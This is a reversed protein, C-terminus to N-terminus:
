GHELLQEIKEWEQEVYRRHTLRKLWSILRIPRRSLSQLMITQVDNKSWGAWEGAVSWLNSAFAPAVEDELISRLEALSYGSIELAEAIRRYDSAELETDLFLNSMAHWVPLRRQVDAIGVQTM